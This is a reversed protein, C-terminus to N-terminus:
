VSGKERYWTPNAPSTISKTQSWGCSVHGFICFLECWSVLYWIPYSAMSCSQDWAHFQLIWKNTRMNMWWCINALCKNQAQCQKRGWKGRPGSGERDDCVLIVQSPSAWMYGSQGERLSCTGRSRCRWLRPLWLGTSGQNRSDEVPRWRKEVPYSSFAKVVTGSKLSWHREFPM